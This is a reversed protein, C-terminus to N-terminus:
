ALERARDRAGEADVGLRAWAVLARAVDLVGHEVGGVAGDRAGDAEVLADGARRGPEAGASRRGGSPARLLGRETTAGSARPGLHLPGARRLSCSSYARM